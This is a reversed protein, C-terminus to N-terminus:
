LLNLNKKLFSQSIDALAKQQRQTQKFVCNEITEKFLKQDKDNNIENNNNVKDIMELTALNIDAPSNKIVEIKKEEYFDDNALLSYPMSFMDEFKLFKNDDKSKFIRPLYLDEKRLSFYEAHVPGDALLVPISFFRPIRFYGSSNGICFNCTAALFIDMFESKYDSNAYDILGEMKPMKKDTPHGMRFVYGGAAIISKIASLYNLPDANRFKEKTNKSTEGRYGPERVCLTVYWANKPLKFKELQKLGEQKHNNKIKFLPKNENQDEKSTEVYNAAEDLPLTIKNFDLFNDLPVFLKKAFEILDRSSFEENIITIHDKFYEFLTENRPKFNKEIVLFIKKKKRINLNNALLLTELAYLNGISGEFNKTDIFEINLKQLNSKNLWRDYKKRYSVIDNYSDEYYIKRNIYYKHHLHPNDPYKKILKKLYKERKKQSKIFDIKKIEVDSKELNQINLGLNLFFLKIYYKINQILIHM